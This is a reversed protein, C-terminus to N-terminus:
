KGHFLPLAVPWWKSGRFVGFVRFIKFLLFCFSKVASKASQRLNM